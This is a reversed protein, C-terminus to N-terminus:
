FIEFEINREYEILNVIFKDHKNERAPKYNKPCNFIKYHKKFDYPKCDDSFCGGALKGLKNNKAFRRGKLEATWRDDNLVFVKIVNYYEQGGRIKSKKLYLYDFKNKM